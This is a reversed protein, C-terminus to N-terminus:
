VLSAIAAGFAFLMLDFESLFELRARHLTNNWYPVLYVAPYLALVYVLVLVAPRVPHILALTTVTLVWLTDLLGLAAACPRTGILVPLTRTGVMRDGREDLIDGFLTNNFTSLMMSGALLGVAFLEEGGVSRGALLVPVVFVSAGWLVSVIINKMFPVEKLRVFALKGDRGLWPILWCSYVVGVAILAMFYASLRGTVMLVAVVLGLVGQTVRLLRGHQAFFASRSSDNAFDERLDTFRNLAYVGFITGMSVACTLLSFPMGLFMMVGVVAAVGGASLYLISLVPRYRDLRVNLSETRM